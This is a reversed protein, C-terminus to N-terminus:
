VENGFTQNMYNCGSRHKRVVFGIECECTYETTELDWVRVWRRWDGGPGEVIHYGHYLSSKVIGCGRGTTSVPITVIDGEKFEHYGVDYTWDFESM